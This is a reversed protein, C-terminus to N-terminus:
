ENSIGVAQIVKGWKAVESRLVRRVARAIRDGPGFGQAALATKLEQM